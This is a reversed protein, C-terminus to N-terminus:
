AKLDIDYVMEEVTAVLRDRVDDPTGHKLGEEGHPHACLRLLSSLSPPAHPSALLGPLLLAGGLRVGLFVKECVAQFVCFELWPHLLSKSIFITNIKM